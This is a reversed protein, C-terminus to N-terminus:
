VSVTFLPTVCVEVVERDSWDEIERAVDGGYMFVLIPKQTYKMANLVLYSREDGAMGLFDSEPWFSAEFSLVCKNLLGCGLQDIAAKKADPLPPIFKVHGPKGEPVKLVGLPLTCVVADCELNTGNELSVHIKSQPTMDEEEDDNDEDRARHEEL